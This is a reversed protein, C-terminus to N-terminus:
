VQNKIRRVVTTETYKPKGDWVFWSCTMPSAGGGTFDPRWALAYIRAPQWAHHFLQYRDNCNLFDAKLLLAMKEIGIDCAHTIIDTALKFPPNSIVADALPERELLFDCRSMGVGRDVLDTEVVDFGQRKLPTSIAGDGCFPEWIKTPWSVFREREGALLATIEDAGVPTRYFDDKERKRREGKPACGLLDSITM